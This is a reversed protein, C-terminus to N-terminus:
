NKIKKKVPSTPLTQVTQWLYRRSQVANIQSVKEKLAMELVRHYCSLNLATINNLVTIVSRAINLEYLVDHCKPFVFKKLLLCLITILSTIANQNRFNLHSKRIRCM